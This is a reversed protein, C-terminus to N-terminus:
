RLPRTPVSATTRGGLAPAAPAKGPAGLTKRVHGKFDMKKAPARGAGPAMAPPAAAGPGQCEKMEYGLKRMTDIYGAQMPTLGEQQAQEQAHKEQELKMASELASM